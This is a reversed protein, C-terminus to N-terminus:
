IGYRQGYLEAVPPNSPPVSAAVHAIVIGWLTKNVPYESYNWFSQDNPDVSTGTFDGYRNRNGGLTEYYTVTGPKYIYRSEMYNVPDAGAHFSYAASPYFSDTGSVCYGLLADGNSNVNLSPYYYNTNGDPDAIRGFQKPTRSSPVIQWWDVGAYTATGTAPLYITHTFWLTGNIYVSGNGVRTDDDNILENTGGGKQGVDIANENWKSTVAINNGANYVPNAVTGSICGIQMAGNAGNGDQVMWLTDEILTMPKRRAGM